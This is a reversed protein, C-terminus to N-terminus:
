HNSQQPGAGADFHCEGDVAQPAEGDDTHEAKVLVDGDLSEEAKVGADDAISNAWTSDEDDQEVQRGCEVDIPFEQVESDSSWREIAEVDIASAAHISAASFSHRSNEEDGAILVDSCNELSSRSSALEDDSHMSMM